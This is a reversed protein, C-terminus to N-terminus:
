EMEPPVLADALQDYQRAITQLTYQFAGDKEARAIQRFREAEQRYRAARQATDATRVFTYIDDDAVGSRAM